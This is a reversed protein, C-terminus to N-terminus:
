KQTKTNNVTVPVERLFMHQIRSHSGVFIKIECFLYLIFSFLILMWHFRKKKKVSEMQLNYNLSPNGKITEYKMLRM